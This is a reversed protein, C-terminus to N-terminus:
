LRGFIARRRTREAISTVIAQFVAQRVQEVRHLQIGLKLGGQEPDIRWRLFAHVETDPEGFYVPLGLVFKTPLELGGKTVASNEATFEFNENDSATRVAKVFNVKRHAQLDRVAELLDAATPARVDASNEEVFRAFELQGMLTGSIGTWLKWEVSHQLQLVARHAGHAPAGPEHYDLVAVIRDNEQDAFLVTAEGSFEGVYEVLSDQTQVTVNQDIYRPLSVSLGHEDSVEKLTTGDPVVLFRRGDALEVSQARLADQALDRIAEAETTM